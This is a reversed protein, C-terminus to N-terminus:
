VGELWSCYRGNERHCGKIGNHVDVKEVQLITKEENSPCVVNGSFSFFYIRKLKHRSFLQNHRSSVKKATLGNGQDYLLFCFCLFLHSTQFFLSSIVRSLGVCFLKAVKLLGKPINWSFGFRNILTERDSLSSQTTFGTKTNFETCNKVCNPGILQNGLSIFHAFFNTQTNTKPQKSDELYLSRGIPRNEGLGETTQRDTKNGPSQCIRRSQM